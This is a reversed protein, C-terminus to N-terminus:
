LFARAALSRPSEQPGPAGTESGRTLCARLAATRELRRAAAFPQVELRLRGHPGAAGAQAAAARRSRTTLQLFRGSRGMRAFAADIIRRQLDLPFWIIPLSSAVMSLRRIGAADLMLGIEAVDGELM